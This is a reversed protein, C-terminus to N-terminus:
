YVCNVVSKIGCLCVTLFFKQIGANPRIGSFIRAFIALRGASKALGDTPSGRGRLKYAGKIFQKRGQSQRRRGCQNLRITKFTQGHDPLVAQPCLAGRARVPVGKVAHQSCLALSFFRRQGGAIAGKCVEISFNESLSEHCFSSWAAAWMGEFGDPRFPAGVKLIRGAANSLIM